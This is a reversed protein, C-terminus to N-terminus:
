INKGSCSLKLERISFLVGKRQVRSDVRGLKRNNAFFNDKEDIIGEMVLAAKEKNDQRM